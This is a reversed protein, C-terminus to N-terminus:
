RVIAEAAAVMPKRVRRLRNRWLAWSVALLLLSGALAILGLLLTAQQPPAASVSQVFFAKLDRQETETLLRNEFLPQMSPFFLTALTADMGEDGLRKYERTLDPGMAGGNPFGLAGSSHCAACPPGGNQFPKAGSFLAAGNSANGPPDVSYVLRAAVTLSRDGQWDRRGGASLPWMAAAILVWAPLRRPTFVRAFRCGDLVTTLRM